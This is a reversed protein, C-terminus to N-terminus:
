QAACSQMDKRVSKMGIRARICIYLKLTHQVLSFMLKQVQKKESLLVHSNKWTMVLGGWRLGKIPKMIVHNQHILVM